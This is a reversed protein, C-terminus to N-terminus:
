RDANQSPLKIRLIWPRIRAGSTPDYRSTDLCVNGDHVIAKLLVLETTEHATSVVCAITSRDDALQINHISRVPLTELPLTGSELGHEKLFSPALYRRLTDASKGELDSTSHNRRMAVCFSKAFAQFEVEEPVRASQKAETIETPVVSDGQIPIDLAEVGCAPQAPQITMGVFLLGLVMAWPKTAFM